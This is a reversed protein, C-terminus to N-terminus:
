AAIAPDWDIHHRFLWDQAGAGQSGLRRLIMPLALDRLVRGIPGVTKTSGMRAGYAVVREVRARRLSEFVGLAAPVGSVDRLCRALVVADEIAMSAGQGASPATAHAADGIVVMPGRRWTPVSPMDYQNAAVIPGVTARVIAAAPTRDCDLLAAIRDRWQATDTAALERRDVERARPPNAFWWLEGSPHVAVGFFCRKGFIMTCSGPVLDVVGAPTFGGVNGMGAYRPAPAGPDVIRRVRSWVGDAGILVDGRAESGDEFRAVVQGDAAVEAAVLRKGHAFGVGCARARAYLAEILDARRLTHTVTGDALTGGLPVEGLPKGTGSLFQIRESAFGAAMVPGHLDLTRLADLGNVAVTLWGGLELGGREPHAEYVVSTIGARRLAIGTVPGAIGGGIIIAHTM